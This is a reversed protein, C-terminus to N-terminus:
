RQKTAQHKPVAIRVITHSRSQTDMRGATAAKILSCKANTTIPCQHMNRRCNNSSPDCPQWRKGCSILYTEITKRRMANRHCWPEVDARTATRSGHRLQTTKIHTQKAIKNPGPKCFNDYTAQVAPVEEWKELADHYLGTNFVIAHTKALVQEDSYPQGADAAFDWCQKVRGM